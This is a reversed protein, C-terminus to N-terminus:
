DVPLYVQFNSGHDPESHATIAGGHNHVVKQCIALGIGTGSYESRGQLRQFIQFIRDTYKEDFGIGNDVVNIQYYASSNKTAHISEPMNASSIIESNIRILPASGAKQFKIANSILNQFLQGLQIRDGKVTPLDDIMIVAKSSQISYELDNLVSAVVQDLAVMEMLDGHSSVKSFSLLDEILASMRQASSQMRELYELGNGLSQAFRNKLLDGFSQIKRLPEQLDHSAVYAFQQLNENSRSLMENTRGLDENLAMYEENIAALEENSSELEETRHQVQQELALMMKQRVTIDQVSGIVKYPQKEENQLVVGQAHLIRAKRDSSPKITFEVDYVRGTEGQIADGISKKVREIGDEFICSLVLDPTIIEEEEFGFWHRLRPSAEVSGSVLDIQWTGLEALEVAGRLTNEADEIKRRALVQPTVDTAVVLVGSISQDVEMKPQYVLNVYVTEEVNDRLLRVPREPAIYPVGTEIVNNLLIDFGQGKIEPICELLPKGIIQDTTRGVLNAYFSNAMTFTLEHTNIIAIAVPSQEFLSLLQVQSEEIRQQEEIKETVDIAIDLIAYVEGKEDLVPTYTINYFNHTMVGHRVINVQTGFSQYMKGSTYVDDLIQLYAQSELEPMVERLPKGTIDPGKGVIDIFSENPMEVVLDRGVFLGIAAPANAVISRLKNESERLAQEALVRQTVDISINIITYVEGNEDLLPKYTFDFYYIGLVGDVVIDVRADRAVHAKKSVLIDALLQHFPQGDLEPMAERLPKGIVSLDKGWYKVMPENALEVIMDRGTFLCIAVPAQEILSRFRSIMRTLESEREVLKQTVNEAQRTATVFKTVDLIIGSMRYGGDANIEAQGKLNLWRPQEDGEKQVRFELDINNQSTFAQAIGAQVFDRDQPFIQKLFEELTIIDEFPYGFIRKFRECLRLEDPDIRLEWTGISAATLATELRKIENNSDSNFPRISDPM